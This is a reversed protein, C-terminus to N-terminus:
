KVLMMRRTQAFGGAAMRCLYVGAAVPDGEDTTGNWTVRYYGSNVVEGNMLTKVLQGTLNYVKLSVKTDPSAVGFEITTTPNFPNPYNQELTFHDPTVSSLLTYVPDCTTSHGAVDFVELTLTSSHNPDIKTATVIVPDTTGPTFAPLNVDANVAVLVSVHALGSEGDQLRVQLTVPPGPAVGLLLCDPPNHDQSAGTVALSFSVTDSQPIPANDMAIAMIGPYSGTDSASPTFLILGSGDGNDTFSGFPPLQQVALVLSDGDPDIALVPVHLTEGATLALNAIAELVPARNVDIVSLSFSVTDALVPDGDDSAVVTIGPYYGAADFGPAFTFVGSGNGQDLFSAFPPLHLATLVLADGDPDTASAAVTLIQNEAMTQDAIPTLVPRHNASAAQVTVMGDRITLFAMLDAFTFAALMGIYELDISTSSGEEGAATFHIKLIDFAGGQGAAKAGNFILVGASANGDDVMGTFGQLVGSNGYYQLVAPDWTLTGTFSGLLHNPAAMGSMDVRIGASLTDGSQPEPNSPVAASVVVGSPPNLGTGALDIIAPNEDPDNSYINLRATKAGASAPTFGVILPHGQWPLVTFPAGGELIAFEGAASGTIETASVLLAETGINNIWFVQTTTSGVPHAGFHYFTVPLQINPAFNRGIRLVTKNVILFPMLNFSSHPATIGLYELEMTTSNGGPERAMFHLVLIDFVEGRGTSNFGRFIIVGDGVSLDEVEGSFGALIGSHGQYQLLAPDWTLTGSFSGLLYASGTMDFNIAVSVKEGARPHRDSPIASSVIVPSADQARCPPLSMLLLIGFLYIIILLPNGRELVKILRSM